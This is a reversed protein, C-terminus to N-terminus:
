SLFKKFFGLPTLEIYIKYSQQIFLNKQIKTTPLRREALQIILINM